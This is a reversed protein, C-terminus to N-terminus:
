MKNELSDPNMWEITTDINGKADQSFLSVTKTKADSSNNMILDFMTNQNSLETIYLVLNLNKTTNETITFVVNGNYGAKNVQIRYQGPSLDISSFLTQESKLDADFTVTSTDIQTVGQM